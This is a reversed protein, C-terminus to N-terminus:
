KLKYLGYLLVLSLPLLPLAIMSAFAAPIQTGIPITFFLLFLASKFLKSMYFQHARQKPHESLSLYSIITCPLVDPQVILKLLGAFGLLGIIVSWPDTTLWLTSEPILLVLSIIVPLPLTILIMRRVSFHRSYHAIYMGGLVSWALWWSQGFLDAAHQPAFCTNLLMLIAPKQTFITNLGSGLVGFLALWLAMFVAFLPLGVFLLKKPAIIKKIFPRLKKIFVLAVVFLSMLLSLISFPHIPGIFLTTLNLCLLTLTLAIMAHTCSRILLHLVSWLNSGQQIHFLVMLSDVLSADSQTKYLTLRLIIAFFLMMGFPALGLLLNSQMVYTFAHAGFYHSIGYFTSYLFLEFAMIRFWPQRTFSPTNQLRQARIPQTPHILYYVSPLLLIWQYAYVNVAHQSFLYAIFCAAVIQLLFAGLDYSFRTTNIKM